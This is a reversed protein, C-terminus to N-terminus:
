IEVEEIQLKVEEGDMRFTVDRYYGKKSYEGFIIKMARQRKRNVIVMEKLKRGEFIVIKEYLGLRERFYLLGERCFSYESGTLVKGFIIDEPLLPLLYCKGRACIRDRELSVDKVKAVRVTYFGDFKAIMMPFSMPGYRFKGYIRFDKPVHNLTYKDAVKEPSLCIGGTKVGCSFVFVAFLLIVPIM